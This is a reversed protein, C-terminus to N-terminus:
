SQRPPIKYVWYGGHRYVLQLAQLEAPRSTTLPLMQALLTNGSKADTLFFVRVQDDALEHLAYAAYKNNHMWQKVFGIPGHLDGKVPFDKYAVGLRDPRMLGLKFLDSVHVAVYAECGGALERLAAVGAEVEGTLADALRQLKQQEEGNASANWFEREYKGIPGGRTRWASPAIFPEGLHSAFATESGSLLRLQRSIDWWALVVADKPAHKGIAKALAALESTRTDLFIAPEDSRNEWGLMVPAADGRRAVHAVAVPQDVGEVRLEYKGINLDTWSELGLKAFKDAGGEEVLQYRYPAPGPNWASYAIWGLLLLGGTVLLLGLSPLLRNGPRALVAEMTEPGLQTLDATV